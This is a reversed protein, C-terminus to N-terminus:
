FMLFSRGYFNCIGKRPTKGLFILVSILFYVHDGMNIVANNLTALIHFGGLYGNVSLHLFFYPACVCVYVGM